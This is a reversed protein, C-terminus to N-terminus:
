HVSSHHRLKGRHAVVAGVSSYKENLVITAVTCALSWVCSYLGIWAAGSMGFITAFCPSLVNNIVTGFRAVSLTLGIALAFERGRFWDTVLRTQAVILSEGGLGFVFRGLMMIHFNKRGVGICFIGHGITVFMALMFLLKSTGFKDLLGGMFLPLVLNPLSYISYMANLQYQHTAFDNGLWEMLQRNLSSPNDLAYFNGFCIWCCLFLIIWRIKSRQIVVVKKADTDATPTM